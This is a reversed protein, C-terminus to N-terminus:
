WIDIAYFKIKIKHNYLLNYEPAEKSLTFKMCVLGNDKCKFHTWNKLQLTM